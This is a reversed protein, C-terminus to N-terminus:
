ISSYIRSYEKIHNESSPFFEQVSQYFYQNWPHQIVGAGLHSFYMQRQIVPFYVAVHCGEAWKTDAVSSKHGNQTWTVQPTFSPRWRCPPTESNTAWMSWQKRATGMCLWVTHVALSSYPLWVMLIQHGGAGLDMNSQNWYNSAQM